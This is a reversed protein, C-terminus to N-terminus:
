SILLPLEIKVNLSKGIDTDFNIIGKLTSIRQIMNNIGLGKRNKIVKDFDFGKGDDSYNIILSKKEYNHKFNIIVKGAQAYKITNNILESIIRYITIESSSDYRREHDCSLEISLKKTENIRHCLHKLAAILGMNILIRPSLSNSIERVAQIAENINQLGTESIRKQKAVEKTESLWQFYLKVTSLMPGLGDHLEQSFRNRENEEASIVADLLKRDVEKQETIDRNTGRHGIYINNDDFLPQCIHEIWRETGNKHIIKFQLNIPETKFPYVSHEYFKDYYDPHVIKYKLEKNEIFEKATYGTVRYCSPSCYIYEGNKGSWFEWSYTNDAVIRYKRESDILAKESLKRETIDEKIALFHTIDGDANFIPSISAIEWFLEGNKKKNHLEGFWEKGSKITQWLNRYYESSMEGSKLIRSNQGIIEEESYGTVKYFKPNAYQIDGNINTIIVSAPSQKVAQSLKRLEEEAKKRDTIDKILSLYHEEGALNVSITTHLGFRVIGSKTRMKFEYNEIIGKERLTQLIINRDEPNAYLNLQLSTFGIVEERNYGTDKIFADNVDVIKGDSVRFLITAIPSLRFIQSFREESLRLAEESWKRESIDKIVGDYSILNGNVDKTLIATNLVWKVVGNKCKIRHEIPAVNVGSLIRRVYDRVLAKDESEVMKLWLYPDEDFEEPMYGTVSECAEGQVTGIANGNEVHVSYLYDTLGETIRRYKNESERLLIEAHKKDTIDRVLILVEDSSLQIARSEYYIKRANIFHDYEFTIVEKTAIAKNIAKKVKRIIEQPFVENLSKGLFHKQFPYQKMREPRRYDLITGNKNIRFLLDPVANIIAQNEAESKSKEQYLLLSTLGDTMRRGIEHFLRVEKDNWIRPKSCQHIGLQWAKGTKPYLAMAMYNKFNFQESVDAPLPYATGPGFMVPGDHSLLVQFSKAVDNDVPMELGQELVGPYEPKNREMPVQWKEAEPDCPYLLYARDCDFMSLVLDLVSSMMYDLNNARQIALNIKDMNELFKFHNLREELLLKEKRELRRQKARNRSERIEREVAPLLRQLNDKMIYDQAGAKMASVAVDEGITGSIMIFPIDKGYEKVIDLAELGNFNPMKYDSFIIDWNESNLAQKLTEATEVRKFKCNYGGNEVQIIDLLADDESDEVVLIKLIRNKANMQKNKLQEIKGSPVDM